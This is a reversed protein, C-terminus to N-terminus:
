NSALTNGASDKYVFKGNNLDSDRYVPVGLLTAVLRGTAYRLVLEASDFTIRGRLRKVTFDGVWEAARRGDNMINLDARYM